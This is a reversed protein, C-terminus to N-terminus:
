KRNLGQSESLNADSLRDNVEKELSHDKKIALGHLLLIGSGSTTFAAYTSMNLINIFSESYNNATDKDGQLYYLFYNGATGVCFAASSVGLIISRLCTNISYNKNNKPM